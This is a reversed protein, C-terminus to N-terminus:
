VTRRGYGDPARGKRRVVVIVLGSLAASALLASLATGLIAVVLDAGPTSQRYTQLAMVRNPQDRDYVVSLTGTMREGRNGGHHGVTATITPRGHFQVTDMTWGNPDGGSPDYASHLVTAAAIVGRQHLAAYTTGDAAVRAWHTAAAGTLALLGLALLILLGPTGPRRRSAAWHSPELQDRAQLWLNRDGREPLGVVRM